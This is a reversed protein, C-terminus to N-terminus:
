WAHENYFLCRSKIWGQGRVKVQEHWGCGRGNNSVRSNNYKLFYLTLMHFYQSLVTQCSILLIYSQSCSGVNGENKWIISGVVTCMLKYYFSWIVLLLLVTHAWRTNHGWYSCSVIHSRSKSWDRYNKRFILSIHKMTNLKSLHCKKILFHNGTIFKLLSKMLEGPTAEETEVSSTPGTTAETETVTESVLPISSLYYQDIVNCGM